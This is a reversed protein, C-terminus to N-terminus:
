FAKNKHRFLAYIVQGFVLKTGETWLVENWFCQPKDVLMEAFELRAKLPKKKKGKM